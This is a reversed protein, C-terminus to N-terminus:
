RSIELSWDNNLGFLKFTGGSGNVLGEYIAGGGTAPAGQTQSFTFEMRLIDNTRTWNGRSTKTKGFDDGYLINATYEWSGGGNFKITGSLSANIETMYYAKIAWDGTIDVGKDSGCGASLFVFCLIVAVQMTFGLKKM